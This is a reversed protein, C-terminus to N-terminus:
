ARERGKEGAFLGEGNRDLLMDVFIAGSGIMSMVGKVGPEWASAWVLADTAWSSAAAQM